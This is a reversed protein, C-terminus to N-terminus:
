SSRTPRRGRPSPCSATCTRSLYRRFPVLFFVGFMAGFLPVFFIQLFNSRGELGLIYIAPMVFVAGGVIM